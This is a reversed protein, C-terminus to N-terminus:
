CQRVGSREISCTQDCRHERSDSKLRARLRAWCLRGNGHKNVVIRSTMTLRSSAMAEAAYPAATADANAATLSCSWM